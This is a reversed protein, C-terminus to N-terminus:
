NRLQRYIVPDVKISAKNGTDGSGSFMVTIESKTIMSPASLQKYCFYRVESLYFEYSEYIEYISRKQLYWDVLVIVPYVCWLFHLKGNLIEGTFTVLDAPFQPNPWM